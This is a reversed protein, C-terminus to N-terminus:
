TPRPRAKNFGELTYRFDDLHVVIHSVPRRSTAIRSVPSRGGFFDGDRHECQPSEEEQSCDNASKKTLRELQITELHSFYRLRGPAM